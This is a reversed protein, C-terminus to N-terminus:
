LAYPLVDKQQAPAPQEVIFYWDRSCPGNPQNIVQIALAVVENLHLKWRDFQRSPVWVMCVWSIGVRSM